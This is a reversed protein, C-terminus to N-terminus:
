TQSKARCKKKGKRLSAIAACRKEEVPETLWGPDPVAESFLFGNRTCWIAYTTASKKNLKTAPNSFVFRVDLDPHQIKLLLHKQRDAPTFQGKAEIIIGNPLVFDPTYSANSTPRQFKVKVPEYEFSCEHHKLCEVVAVELKSRYGTEQRTKNVAGFFRGSFGM